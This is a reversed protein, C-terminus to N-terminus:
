GGNGQFIVGQWNSQQSMDSISSAFIVAHGNTGTSFSGNSSGGGGKGIGAGNIGGIATVTGGYINATGGNGGLSPNQPDPAIGQTGGGIGADNRSSATVTGGYITVTGGDEGVGGGIGAGANGGQATVTGGYITLTGCTIHISSIGGGGIGAGGTGGTAEVRGGHLTVSGSQGFSYGIGPNNSIGIAILKGAEEGDSQGYITLRNTNKVDIGGNVTLTCNDQLILHVDGTVTVYNSITVDGQAVYWKTQGAEGWTTPASSESIVIYEGDNKTASTFTGDKENYALYEVSDGAALAATPLLSLCLALSLLIPLMRRKM